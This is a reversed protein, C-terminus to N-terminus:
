SARSAGYPAAIEQTPPAYCKPVQFMGNGIGLYVCISPESATGNLVQVAVGEGAAIDLKGDGNFDGTMLNGVLLSSPGLGGPPNSPGISLDTRVLAVAPIPNVVSLYVYNSIGGGPLPNTVTIIATRPNAIDTVLIAATLQTASIFTTTRPSGNWNVTAGSVFGSGNVTL